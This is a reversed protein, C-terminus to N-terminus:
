AADVQDASIQDLDGRWKILCAAGCPQADRDNELQHAHQGLCYIFAALVAGFRHGPSQWEGKWFYEFRRGRFAMLRAPWNLVEGFAALPGFTLALASSPWTFCGTCLNHM